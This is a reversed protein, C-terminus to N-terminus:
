SRPLRVMDPDFVVLLIDPAVPVITSLPVPVHFWVVVALISHLTVILVAPVMVSPVFM